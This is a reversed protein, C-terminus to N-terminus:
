RITLQYPVRAQIAGLRDVNKLLMFPSYYDGLAARLRGDLLSGRDASAALLQELWGAPAPYGATHWEDLRALAAAKEVAEDLGGLGDILKAALADTALWVRGQAVSDVQAETMRRGAAVRKLFLRYGRDVYSSLYAMEEDTFPRAPTGFASHRNTKVEDFRVGLKDTLLGSVDPFMGFIGISGTLTMPEAFIYNAACGLYYGGSAAMGGMSVVVPKRERLRRVSNWIQESAYASGGGSNVRLVVAKVGDDAALRELDKCVDDAAICPSASLGGPNTDVVDGCAYYVAVEGGGDGQPDPLAKMDALALQSVAQGPALGLRRKIVNKVDVAYVLTDVLRKRVYDQPAALTVLEDAYRDLERWGIKRSRSVDSLIADWMGDIYAQVQRRNDDSMGDATFMEPASKYRGVKALQMRVGFKELLDKLFVPQASLGHWDLMGQPNLMVCDAVSCIYYSLQTYTDAYAAIWKGSKRFDELQRRIAKASAPSDPAFLGAEIYIGKIRDDAKAKRIAALIDDLGLYPASEGALQGFVNDQARESLVGSLKLVFVSNDKVKPQTQETALMGVVSVVTLGVLIGVLLMIGTMTALTYKLFDRMHLDQKQRNGSRAAM